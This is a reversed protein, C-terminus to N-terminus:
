LPAAGPARLVPATGGRQQRAPTLPGEGSRGPDPPRVSCAEFVARPAGFTRRVQPLLLCPRRKSLSATGAGPDRSEPARPDSVSGPTGRARSGPASARSAVRACPAPVRVAARSRSRSSTQFNASQFKATQFDFRIACRVGSGHGPRPAACAMFADVRSPAATSRLAPVATSNRATPMALPRHRRRECTARDRNQMAGSRQRKASRHARSVLAISAAVNEVTM